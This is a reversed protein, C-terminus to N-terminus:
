ANAAEKKGPRLNPFKVFIFITGCLIAAYLPFAVNALNWTDITLLTLISGFFGSLYAFASETAPHRYAKIVTPTAALADALISFVIAVNGTKTIIWLILALVSMAGCAIDFRSLRWYSQKNLFSALMVLAPGFFAVFTFAAPFTVGQQIEAAFTILPALSWLVWTVRNPKTTGRLTDIAYMGTGVLNIAAGLLAFRPDLM